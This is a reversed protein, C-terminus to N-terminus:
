IRGCEIKDTFKRGFRKRLITEEMTALQALRQRDKALYHKLLKVHQKASVLYQKTYELNQKALEKKALMEEALLVVASETAEVTQKKEELKQGTEEMDKDIQAQSARIAKIEELIATERRTLEAQFVYFTFSFTLSLILM